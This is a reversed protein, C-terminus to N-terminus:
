LHTLQADLGGLLAASVYSTLPLPKVKVRKVNLREIRSFLSHTELNNRAAFLMEQTELKQICQM